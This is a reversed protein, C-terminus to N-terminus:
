KSKEIFINENHWKLLEPLPTFKESLAIKSDDLEAIKSLVSNNRLELITHSVKIKMDPLVTILGQDFAKDHIASL